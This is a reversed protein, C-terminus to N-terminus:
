QWCRRRLLARVRAVLERPRFPKVLYDDAGSQLGAIRDEEGGRATLVLVPLNTIERIHRLGDLGNAGPMTVDMIVAQCGEFLEGTVPFKMDSRVDVDFGSEQLLRRLRSTVEFDDLLLVRKKCGVELHGSSEHAHLSSFPSTDTSMWFKANMDDTEKFTSIRAHCLRAERRAVPEHAHHFTNRSFEPTDLRM